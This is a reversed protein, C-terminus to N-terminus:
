EHETVRQHNHNDGKIKVELYFGTHIDTIENNVSRFSLWSGDMLWRKLEELSRIM